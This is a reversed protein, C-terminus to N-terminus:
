ERCSTDLNDVIHRSRKWQSCEDRSYKLRVRLAYEGPRRIMVNLMAFNANFPQCGLNM